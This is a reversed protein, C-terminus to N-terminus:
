RNAKRSAKAMKNKRQRKKRYDNNFKTVTVKGKHITNKYKLKGDLLEKVVIQHKEEDNLERTEVVNTEPNFIRFIEKKVEGEKENKVFRVYFTPSIKVYNRKNTDLIETVEEIEEIPTVDIEESVVNADELEENM